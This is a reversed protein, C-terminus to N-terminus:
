SFITFTTVACPASLSDVVVVGTSSTGNYSSVDLYDISCKITVEKLLDVMFPNCGKLLGIFVPEKGEFDKSIQKGLRKCIVDIQEVSVSIKKIDNIM